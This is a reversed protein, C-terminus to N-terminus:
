KGDSVERNLYWEVLANVADMPVREDNNDVTLFTKVGQKSIYGFKIDTGRVSELGSFLVKQTITDFYVHTNAALLSRDLNIEM